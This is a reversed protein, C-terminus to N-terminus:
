GVHNCHLDRSSDGEYLIQYQELKEKSEALRDRLLTSGDWDKDRCHSFRADPNEASVISQPSCPSVPVEEQQNLWQLGKLWILSTISIAAVVTIFYKM